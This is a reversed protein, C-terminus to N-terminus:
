AEEEGSQLKKILSRVRKANAGLDSYGVRSRSYIAIEAGAADLAQGPTAPRVLVDVDDKFRLFATTAVFSLQLQETAQDQLTWRPEAEIRRLVATYLAMPSIQFPAASEDPVAQECLGDPAVHFTNPSSPRTLKVFDILQVM